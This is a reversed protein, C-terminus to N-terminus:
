SNRVCVISSSSRSSGTVSCDLSAISTACQAFSGPTCVVIAEDAGAIANKFGLEIGAPCDILVYDYSERLKRRARADERHRSRRERASARRRAAGAHRQAQRRVLAEDLSVKDELVDLVHHKVRSELGLVIDLNRLGVDADILAVRAGRAALATGLNATTTTKGVGGKGSTVVIAGGRSQYRLARRIRASCTACLWSNGRKSLASSGASSTKRTTVRSRCWRAKWVAHSRKTSRRSRAARILVIPEGRNTTDIIEEDDPVIGLLEISLIECVDDVSLM